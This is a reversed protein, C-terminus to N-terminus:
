IGNTIIKINHQNLDIKLCTDPQKNVLQLLEDDSLFQTDTISHECVSCKRSAINTVELNDWNVNYPCKMKKILQGSSAYLEKTIPNFNM